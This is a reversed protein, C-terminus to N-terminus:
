SKDSLDGLFEVVRRESWPEMGHILDVFGVHGGSEPAEFFLCPNEEAEAFPFCGPTLFPDDRANILLTPVAIRDLYQRSSSKKWYDAADRFGHIPATYCDDFEQLTRITRSRHANVQDPFQLAKAEVKAILSKIFRRLYIRNSWRQDLARACAALDVPVSIAAAAIVAPHPVAEGLYKLTLNGGLSFGILAIQSYRIAAFRIVAGLDGTEGSHYFRPLRNMEKGCGRLNWALGDWGAARLATAMGLNCRDDSRGELGHSLIALKDGGTRMWDLDLFDGDELELREREFAINLRRPLLVPLITQIHGNRLLVPPHFGSALIPMSVYLHEETV